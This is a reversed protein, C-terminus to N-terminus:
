CCIKEFDDEEVVQAATAVVEVEMHDEMHDVVAAAVVEM